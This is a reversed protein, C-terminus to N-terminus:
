RIIAFLQQNEAVLLGDPTWLARHEVCYGDVGTESKADHFLPATPDLRAPDTLLELAFTVTAMPRVEQLTSLVTPWWADACAAVVAADFAAIPLRPQIFGAAVPVPAGSFPWPGTPRFKFHGAFVPGLPPEVAVEDVDTFRPMTPPVRHQFQPTGPRSKALVVVACCQEEVVGAGSDQLLRVRVASLGSGQRLREVHLTAPGPLVPGLLEATVSRVRRADDNIAVTAARVMAGVVLGGFAGRGQQWGDPVTFISTTDDVRVADLLRDLALPNAENMRDIHVVVAVRALADIDSLRV